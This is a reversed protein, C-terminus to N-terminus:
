EREAARGTTLNWRGIRGDATCVGYLINERSFYLSRPTPCDPTLESIQSGYLVQFIPLRGDDLLVALLHGDNSFAMDRVAGDATLKAVATGPSETSAVRILGDASAAAFMGGMATVAVSTIPRNAALSLWRERHHRLRGLFLAGDATAALLTSGSRTAAMATFSRGEADCFLRELESNDADISCIAGDATGVFAGAESAAVATIRSSPVTVPVLRGDGVTWIENHTDVFAILRESSAGSLRVTRAFPYGTDNKKPAAKNADRKRGVIAAGAPEDRELEEDADVGVQTPDPLFQLTKKVEIDRPPKHGRPNTAPRDFGRPNTENLSRLQGSDRQTRWEDVKGKKDATENDTTDTDPAEGLGHRLGLVTKPRDQFAMTAKLSETPDLDTGLETRRAGNYSDEVALQNTLDASEAPTPEHLADADALEEADSAERTSRLADIVEYLDAPRDSPSKALMAAVLRELARPFKRKPCAQSLTPAPKQVHAKLVQLTNDSEFPPRGTLMYFLTAGLSYIDSRGDLEGGTAQEPSAFLPTGLFGRTLKTEGDLRVVGFDLLYAFDEGDPLRELMINAPKIDRHIMGVDHAECLGNTVQFLLALARDVDLPGQADIREELTDGEIHDMVLAIWNENLELLEYVRVIHPNRLMGVARVERELRARVEETVGKESHWLKVMKIAFRKPVTLSEARYITSSSGRGEIKSILYRENLIRGLFPDYAGILPVWGGRPRDSGCDLCSEDAEARLSTCKECFHRLLNDARRRLAQQDKWNTGM